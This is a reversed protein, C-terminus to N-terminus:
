KVIRGEGAWHRYAQYLLAAKGIRLGGVTLVVAVPLWVLHVWWPPGFRLDIVIASVAVIAGVILILFAAPGDGVDYSLFELGCDPCKDAFSSPSRFLTRAGCRPCLGKLSAGALTPATM